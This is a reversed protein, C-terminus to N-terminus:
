NGFFIEQLSHSDLERDLTRQIELLHLHARCVADEHEQCWQCQYGPRMCSSVFADEGMIRMLQYLTIQDLGNTLSCGGGAGRVIRLVGGKELKKLIKYAFQLPIQEYEALSVATHQEGDALARLIRLAYDTERTIFM